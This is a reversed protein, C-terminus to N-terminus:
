TCGAMQKLVLVLTEYIEVHKLQVIWYDVPDKCAPSYSAM